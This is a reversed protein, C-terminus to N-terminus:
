TQQVNEITEEAVCPRGQGPERHSVCGIEVFRNYWALITMRQPSTKSVQGQIKESRFYAIAIRSIVFLVTCVACQYIVGHHSAPNRFLEACTSHWRVTQIFDQPSPM